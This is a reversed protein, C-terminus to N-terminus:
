VLYALQEIDRLTNEEKQEFLSALSGIAFSYFGVGVLEWLVV